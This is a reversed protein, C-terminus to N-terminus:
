CACTFYADDLDGDDMPEKGTVAYYANMLEMKYEGLMDATADDGGYANGDVYLDSLTELLGEYTFGVHKAFKRLYAEAEQKKTSVADKKDLVPHTWDHRLSNISGPYLFMWFKQDERVGEKLFPDVVGIPNASEGAKGDPRLGIHEGPLLVQGATVPYVAIHCADRQQETTILNGLKLTDEKM